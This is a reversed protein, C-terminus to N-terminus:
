AAGDKTQFGDDMVRTIVRGQSESIGRDCLADLEEAGVVFEEEPKYANGDRLWRYRAADRVAAEVDSWAVLEGLPNEELEYTAGARELTYRKM